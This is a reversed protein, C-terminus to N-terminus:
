PDRRRKCRCGPAFVLVVLATLLGPLMVAGTVMLRHTTDAAM